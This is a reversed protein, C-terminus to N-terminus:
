VGNCRILVPSNHWPSRVDIECDGPTTGYGGTRRVNRPTQNVQASSQVVDIIVEKTMPMTIMHLTGGCTAIRDDIRPDM